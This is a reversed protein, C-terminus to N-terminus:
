RIAVLDAEDTVVYVTDGMAIPAMTAPGNLDLRKEVDGTHANLVVLEGGQGAILLRQGALLPGSWIPRAERKGFLGFVGGKKKAKFGENLDKIWYIQGSERSACIVQGTKSVVYIVDGAPWPTSIGVVPLTWRVQGTRLDTAAFVGSHSVAFVDGQYIVPRGPIDRIESLASTRSARSLAENWLDNGNATRLAVLEGSGFAAVVTDGSVAPTSAKLIRASEALAQYTWSPTGDKTDFTLLSNDLAVVFVRGGSVTPAGHIPEDTRTRWGVAGTRADMQMVERYGSSVYLKGDAYAMGGGFALKDRKNDGPNTGTRWIESGTRADMAAVRGAADMVFVKGDAAVPPATVYRGRKDGQGFSKRWAVNLNDGVAVNGLAQEPNGGPLPWAPVPQPTSVSFTVGKLAETPELREDQPVISVRQGQGALEQPGKDKKGFPNLRGVTSCSSAGLAAVLLVALVSKRRIM